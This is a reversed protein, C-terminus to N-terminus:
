DDDDDQDDDHDKCQITINLRRVALYRIIYRPHARKLGVASM